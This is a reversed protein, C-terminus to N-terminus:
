RICETQGIVNINADEITLINTIKKLESSYMQGYMKAKVSSIDNSKKSLETFIYRLSSLACASRLLDRDDVDKIGQSQGRFVNRIDRSAIDIKDIAKSGIIDPSEYKYIDGPSCLLNDTAYVAEGRATTTINLDNDGVYLGQGYKSSGYNSLLTNHFGMSYAVSSVITYPVSILYDPKIAVTAIVTAGAYFNVQDYGIRYVNTKNDFPFSTGSSVYLRQGAISNVTRIESQDKEPDNICVFDNIAFGAVNLVPLETAAALTKTSLRTRELLNYDIRGYLRSLDNSIIARM